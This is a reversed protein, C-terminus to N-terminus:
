YSIIKGVIKVTDKVQRFETTYQSTYVPNSHLTIM